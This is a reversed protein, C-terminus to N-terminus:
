IWYTTKVMVKSMMAMTKKIVEPLDYAGYAIAEDRHFSEDVEMQKLITYSRKDQAPLLHLHNELHKIVQRETEAVFGLSWKDGIMGAVMGICFSGAYWLPNLYSVHSSLEELRQQCWALHDGEEIAAQQMKEQITPSRSLMGQGHYLAQACIEGAHNIRMLAASHHRQQESLTVEEVKTAPYPKGTTKVNKTLARVVQDVNLCLRDIISYHRFVDM